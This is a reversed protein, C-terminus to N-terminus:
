TELFAGFNNAGASDTRAVRYTGPGAIVRAPNAKDLNGIFNDVGPTAMRVQLNGFQPLATDSFIGVTATSGAALVIDASIAAANGLALITSRPM